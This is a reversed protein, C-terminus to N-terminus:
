YGLDAEYANGAELLAMELRAGAALPLRLAGFLDHFRVGDTSDGAVHGDYLDLNSYRGSLAYSGDGAPGFVAAHALMSGLGATGTTKGPRSERTAVDIVGALADGYEASFGGTTVTLSDVLDGNITGASGAGGGFHYAYPLPQGDLLVATEAADGGRVRMESHFDNG